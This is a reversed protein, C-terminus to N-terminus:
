RELQVNSGRIYDGLIRDIKDYDLGYDDLQYSHKHGKGHESRDRSLWARMAVQTDEPLPLGFHAYIKQVVAMPDAQVELYHADIFRDKFQPKARVTAIKQMGYAQQELMGFEGSPVYDSFLQRLAVLNSSLSPLVKAPDRHCQILCADPYVSLLEELWLNHAPSKLVWRDGRFRHQLHQLFQKHEAYV